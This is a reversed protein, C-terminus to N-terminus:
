ILIHSGVVSNVGVSDTYIITYNAQWVTAGSKNVTSSFTLNKWFGKSQAMKVANATGSVNQIFLIQLDTLPKGVAITGNLLALKVSSMITAMCMARGSADIPVEDVALLLNIFGIGINDKFWMENVYTTLSTPNTAGGCMLGLQYFNLFQGNAQTQGYYNIRLGDFTDADTDDIVTPSLTSDQQFEYNASANASTYDSAGAVKAPLMECYDTPGAVLSLNTGEFGILATSWAAANAELVPVDFVFDVNNAANAAAVAAVQALSLNAGNTPDTTFIFHGFNTSAAVSKQFSVDATEADGGPVNIANESLFGLMLALSNEVTNPFTITQGAGPADSTSFFAGNPISYQIHFSTQDLAAQILTGVDTLDTATSLNINSVTTPPSAEDVSYILTGATVAQFQTFSSTAAVDGFVVPPSASPNFKSYSIKNPTRGKKSVWSFYSVARSYEESTLGFLSAISSLESNTFEIFSDPPLFDSTSFIRLGLNRVPAQAAGGVASTIDIYRTFSIAM